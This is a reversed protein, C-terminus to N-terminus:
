AIRQEAAPLAASSRERERGRSYQSMVFSFAIYIAALMLYVDTSFSQGTPDTLAVKGTWLLDSLDVILAPSTARLLWHIHQGTVPDGSATGTASWSATKKWYSLGVADAPEAHSKSLAQLGGRVV